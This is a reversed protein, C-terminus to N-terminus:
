QADLRWLMVTSDESATALMTSDASASVSFVRGRHGAFKHLQKGTAVDWVFVNTHHDGAILKKGDPTFALAGAQRHWVRWEKSGSDLVHLLAGTDGKLLHIKGPMGCAVVKGDPSIALSDTRVVEETRWRQKGTTLDLCCWYYRFGKLIDKIGPPPPVSVTMELVIAKGDASIATRTATGNLEKKLDLRRTVKGTATDWFALRSQDVENAVLTRGGSAFGVPYGGTKAGVPRLEKSAQLDFLHIAKDDEPFGRWHSIALLKGDPSALAWWIHRDGTSVRAVQKGARWDWLRYAREAPAVALVKGDPLWHTLQVAAYPAKISVEKASRPDWFRVAPAGGLTASGAPGGGTALLPPAAAPSFAVVSAGDLEHLLKRTALDWITTRSSAVALLKRDPSISLSGEGSSPAPLFAIRKGTAAEWIRVGDQATGAVLLKGDPSFALAPRYPTVSLKGAPDAELSRVKRWSATDYLVVPEVRNPLYGALALWKGDPSFGPEGGGSLERVKRGTAVEWVQWGAALLKGDPSFALGWGNREIRRLVKGTATDWVVTPPQKPQYPNVFGVALLKGDPSLALREPLDSPGLAITRLEKGTRSDVMRVVNDVGGGGAYAVTKGDATFALFNAGLGHRFRLTGLRALAGPPLPDGYADTRPQKDLPREGAREAPPVAKPRADQTVEKQEGADGGPALALLGLGSVLSSLLLLVLAAATWKKIQTTRIAGEALALATAPVLGAPTTKGAFTVAARTTAAALSPPVAQTSNDAFLTAFLAVSPTLGRRVLRGRLLNRARELHERLTGRALGLHEAAEDRTKGEWYCLLLAARYKQPLRELEAHLIAQWERVSLEELLDAAPPPAAPAQWARRKEARMKARRALRYAVGHLWSGVSAQKRIARAKRALVLFTAQFADEADQRHGLVSRCVGLVMAGHRGVLAAFAEEGPSEGALFQQLLEQDPEGGPRQEAALKRLHRLLIPESPQPM